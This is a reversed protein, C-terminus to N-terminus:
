RHDSKNWNIDSQIVNVIKKKEYEKLQLEFGLNPCIQPRKNKCLKLADKFNM